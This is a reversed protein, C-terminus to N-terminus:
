NSMFLVRPALSGDGPWYGVGRASAQPLAPGGGRRGGGAGGAVALGPPPAAPTTAPAQADTVPAPPSAVSKIAYSWVQTGTSGDLAVVQNGNAVFMVGNVVLPVSTAGGSMKFTWSEKLSTVNSTNIQTLPSYRTAALDRNLNPWDGPAIQDRKDQAVGTRLTVVSVLVITTAAIGAFRKM